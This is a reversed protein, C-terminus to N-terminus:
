CLYLLVMGGEIACNVDLLGQLEWGRYRKRWPVCTAVNKDVPHGVSDGAERVLSCLPALNIYSHCHQDLGIWWAPDM